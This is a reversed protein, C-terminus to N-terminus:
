AGNISVVPASLSVKVSSSISANGTTTVTADGSVTASLNGGVSLACDSVTTIALKGSADINIVVGSASTFNVVNGQVNLTNGAPDKFGWSSGSPFAGNASLQVHMYLPYHPDGDQLLILVDSGIAPTGYIGYSEGFGFPSNKIPGIWPIDGLNPDYLGVVSAKIRDLNKPDVNTTVKGLFYKGKYGEVMDLANHLTDFM